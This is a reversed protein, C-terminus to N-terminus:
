KPVAKMVYEIGVSVTFRKMAEWRLQAFIENRQVHMKNWWRLAPGLPKMRLACLHAYCREATIIVIERLWTRTRPFLALFLLVIVSVWVMACCEVLSVCMRLMRVCDRAPVACMLFVRVISAVARCLVCSVCVCESGEETGGGWNCEVFNRFSTRPILQKYSTTHLDKRLNDAKFWNPM